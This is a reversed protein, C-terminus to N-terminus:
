SHLSPINNSSTRRFRILRCTLNSICFLRVASTGYRKALEQLKRNEKEGLTCQKGQWAWIATSVLGTTWSKSRHIIVLLETDYFVAESQSITTTTTGTLLMVDVSITESKPDASLVVPPKLLPEISIGSLLMDGDDATLIDSLFDIFVFAWSRPM